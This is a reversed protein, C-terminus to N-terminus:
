IGIQSCFIEREPLEPTWKLFKLLVISCFLQSYNWSLLLFFLTMNEADVWGVSWCQEAGLALEGFFLLFLKGCWSLSLLTFSLSGWGKSASGSHGVETEGWRSVPLASISLFPKFCSLWPSGIGVMCHSYSWTGAVLEASFGLLKLVLLWPWVDATPRSGASDWTVLRCCRAWRSSTRGVTGRSHVHRQPVQRCTVSTCM